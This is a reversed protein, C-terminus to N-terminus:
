TETKKEDQLYINGVEAFKQIQLGVHRMGQAFASDREGGMSDPYYTSDGLRALSYMIAQLAIRQEHESAVGAWCNKIARIDQKSILGPARYQPPTDCVVVPKWPQAHPKVDKSM